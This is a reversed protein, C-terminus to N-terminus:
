VERVVNIIVFISLGTLIIGVLRAIFIWAGSFFNNIDNFGIGLDIGFIVEIFNFGILLGSALLILMLLVVEGKNAM